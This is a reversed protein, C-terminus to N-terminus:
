GMTKRELGKIREDTWRLSSAKAIYRPLEKSAEQVGFRVGTTDRIDGSILSLLQQRVDPSVGEKFEVTIGAMERKDDTIYVRGQYEVIEGKTLVIEDITQPWISVGKVKVMDDYRTITGAELLTFPRGCDCANYPFYRVRDGLRFRLFPSAKKNLPTAVMEGMEGPGVPEGTDPDIVEHVAFHEYLHYSGRQEGIIAGNECTCGNACQTTGYNDAIKANWKEEMKHIFSIPWASMSIMIKRVSLDRAPDLGLKEAEYTLTELYPPTVDINSIKFRSMYDLKAKTDYMGLNFVNCGVRQMGLYIAPAAETVGIPLINMASDGEQWGSWTFSTAIFDVIEDWTEKTDTHVEQGKGSTGSTLYTIFIKNETVALRTGFPLREQQDAVLDQKTTFPVKHTFDERTKIDDPTIKAKEFQRKCLGSNEYTYRIQEQLRRWQYALLEERSM